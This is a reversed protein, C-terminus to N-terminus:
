LARFTREPRLAAFWTRPDWPRAGGGTSFLVLIPRGVLDDCPVMGVAGGDEAPFRSDASRDRNDGLLFMRGAPVVVPGFDDVQSAGLDLLAHSRGDPMRERYRRYRCAADVGSGVRAINTGPEPRCPSNASIPLDLDAVRRQPLARGNVLVVGDRLAVTDGPLGIVRKVYDIREAPPAKFVVLDGRRPMKAQLRGRWLHRALPGGDGSWGYPWKAVLLYDGTRLTPLMSESPITYIAFVFLRFAVAVAFAMLLVTAEWLLRRPM